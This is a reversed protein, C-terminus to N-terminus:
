CAGREAAAMERRIIAEAEDATRGDRMIAYKRLAFRIADWTSPEAADPDATAFDRFPDNM